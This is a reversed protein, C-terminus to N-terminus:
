PRHALRDVSLRLRRLAAARDIGHGLRSHRPHGHLDRSHCDHAPTAGQPNPQPNPNFDKRELHAHPSGHEILLMSSGPKGEIKAEVQRSLWAGGVQEISYFVFQKTPAGSKPVAEVYVPAGSKQDIWTTVSAYVSPQSPGPESKLVFCDRAGYKQAPLVTQKAWFFQGDVFDEPYFLTGAVGESWQDPPLKVPSASGKRLADITTHGEADQTLLYRVTSRDPMTVTVMTRLGDPFSHSELALTNNTRAGNAAIQVLRGTARIDSKEVRARAAALVAKLSGAPPKAATQAICVVLAVALILPALRSLRM